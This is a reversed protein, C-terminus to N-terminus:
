MTIIYQMMGMTFVGQLNLYKCRQNEGNTKCHECPYVQFFGYGGSYADARLHNKCVACVLLGDIEDIRIM